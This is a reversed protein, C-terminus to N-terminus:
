ETIDFNLRIFELNEIDSKSKGAKTRKNKFAAYKKYAVRAAVGLACLVNLGIWTKYVPTVNIPAGLMHRMFIWSTMFPHTLYWGSGALDSPPLGKFSAVANNMSKVIWDAVAGLVAADAIYAGVGIGAWKLLSKLKINKELRDAVAAGLGTSGFRSKQQEFSCIGSKLKDLLDNFM